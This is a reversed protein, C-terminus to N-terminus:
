GLKISNGQYQKRDYRRLSDVKSHKVPVIGDCIIFSDIDAKTKDDIVALIKSKFANGKLKVNKLYLDFKQSDRILLEVKNEDKPIM